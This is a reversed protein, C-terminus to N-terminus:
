SRRREARERYAEERSVEFLEEIRAILAHCARKERNCQIRAVLYGPKPEQSAVEREMADICDLLMVIAGVREILAHQPGLDECLLAAIAESAHMNNQCALSVLERDTCHNLQAKVITRLFTVLGREAGQVQRGVLDKYAVM